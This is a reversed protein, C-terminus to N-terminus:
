PKVGEEQLPERVLKHLKMSTKCIKKEADWEGLPCCFILRVTHNREANKTFVITRFSEPECKEGLYFDEVRKKEDVSM